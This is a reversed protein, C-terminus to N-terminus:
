TGGVPDGNSKLAPPPTWPSAMVTAGLAVARLAAPVELEFEAPDYPVRVRLISMGIQEPGTGFATDVQEPTLDDIWGPVNIGGFGSISQFTVGLDVNVAGEVVESVCIAAPQGADAVVGDLGADSSVSLDRQLTPTVSTEDVKGCGCAAWVFGCAWWVRSARM